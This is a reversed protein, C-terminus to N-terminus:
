DFHRLKSYAYWGAFLAAGSVSAIRLLMSPEVDLFRYLRRELRTGMAWALFGSATAFALVAAKRLHSFGILKKSRKM